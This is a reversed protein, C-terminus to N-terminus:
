NELQFKKKEEIYAVNKPIRIDAVKGNKFLLVLKITIALKNNFVVEDIQEETLSLSEEFNDDIPAYYFEFYDSGPYYDLSIGEKFRSQFMLPNMIGFQNQFWKHLQWSNMYGLFKNELNLLPVIMKIDMNMMAMIFQYRAMENSLIQEETQKNFILTEM